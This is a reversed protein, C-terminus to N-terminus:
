TFKSKAGPSVTATIPGDPEPLDVSSCASAPMMRGVDPVTVKWPAFRVAILSASRVLSRRPANPKTNWDPCSNGSNGATSFM